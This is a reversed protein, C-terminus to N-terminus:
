SVVEYRGRSGAIKGAKQLANMANSVQQGTLGTAGMIAQRHPSGARIAELVKAKVAGRDLGSSKRPKRVVAGVGNSAKPAKAVPATKAIEYANIAAFEADVSALRAQLERIQSLLESKL